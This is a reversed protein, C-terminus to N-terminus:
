LPILRAEEQKISLFIEQGSEIKVSNSIHVVLTRQKVKIKVEQAFGKSVFSLINGKEGNESIEFEHPWVLLNCRTTKDNIAPHFHRIEMEGWESKVTLISNNRAMIECPLLFGDGILKAVHADRPYQFIQEATDVQRIEGNDLIAVRDSFSLIDQFDHTVFLCGMKEQKFIIQLEQKIENKLILDLSSFPEDLLLLSPRSALSRAILVRKQEGLSLHKFLKKDKYYLSFLDILERKREVQEKNPWSQIRESLIEDVSLDWNIDNLELVLEAHGNLEITGQDAKEIGAIIKLLTSKGTGSPGFLGLTEGKSIAFAM